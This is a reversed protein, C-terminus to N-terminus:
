EKIKVITEGGFPIVGIKSTKGQLLLAHRIAKQISSFPSFGLNTIEEDTIGKSICFVKARKLLRAQSVCIAGCSRDKIKGSDLNKLIIEPEKNCWNLLIDKHKPAGGSVGEPADIVFIVIGGEKVALLSFVYPKYGQWFDENSPYANVIVIDARGPITPRFMKEAYKIAERHASIFHGAFIGVFNENLDQITNIIFDLGVQGAVAEMEKRVFNNENGILELINEYVGGMFHTYNTTLESCVGPQIMKGGGGWGALPHPVVTGIAIKVDADYVIPNIQIPTRNKTFGLDVCNEVRYDHNVIKIKQTVEKGFRKIIENKNMPRHTGTAIVLTIMDDSIGYKNLEKLLVPIIKHQPTPRTLDDAILVINKKGKVIEKLPKCNIPNLISDIIAEEINNIKPLKGIPSYFLLNNKNIEFSLNSHNYIFNFKIM